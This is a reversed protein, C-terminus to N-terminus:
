SRVEQKEHHEQRPSTRGPLPLAFILAILAALVPLGPPLVPTLAVAVVAGVLAVRLAVRDKLSPMVLALMGAPFAADIGLTDPDGVASGVLAGIVSGLNWAVFLAAGSLWYARRRAEPTEQSLSFAVSEDVMLHSGVARALPRQGLVDGIALGFPLHRANLLLGALVAAVASGGGGVVGVALFQAGGAFVFLSMATAHWVSVGAAVAIAGFSLGVVFSASAM